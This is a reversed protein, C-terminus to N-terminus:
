VEFQSRLEDGRVRTMVLRHSSGHFYSSALLIVRNIFVAHSEEPEVFNGSYQMLKFGNFKAYKGSLDFILCPCNVQDIKPFALM